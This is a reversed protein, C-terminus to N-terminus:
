AASRGTDDTDTSPVFDLERFRRDFLFEFRMWQGGWEQPGEVNHDLLGLRRVQTLDQELLHPKTWHLFVRRVMRDLAESEGDPVDDSDYPGDADGSSDTEDPADPTGDGFDEQRPEDQYPKEDPAEGPAPAGTDQNEEGAAGPHLQGPPTTGREGTDNGTRERLAAIRTELLRGFPEAGNPGPLVVDAFGERAARGLLGALRAADDWQTKSWNVVREPVGVATRVADPRGRRASSKWLDLAMGFRMGANRIADGIVVKTAQAGREKGGADGYGLRTVGAITLRIWMGGYDDIRPLGDRNLAVPEWGWFPDHALIRATAEAHGVFDLDTHAVTVTQGCGTCAVKHHNPCVGAPSEECARCDIGPRTSIEEDPFPACVAALIARQEDRTYGGPNDQFHTHQLPGGADAPAQAPSAM